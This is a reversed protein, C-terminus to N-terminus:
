PQSSRAAGRQPLVRLTDRCRACRTRFDDSLRPDERLRAWYFEALERAQPWVMLTAATPGAPEFRREVLQGEHPAFLMPLMDYVPALEFQGEYRDFLTINGFHRDSNAILSGFTDLLTIRDADQSSLLGDTRLRQAALAWSDRALGYRAGRTTGLLRVVRGGKELPQLARSVTPQSVKLTQAMEAASVPGRKLFTFIKTALAATM